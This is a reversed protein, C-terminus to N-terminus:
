IRALERQGIRGADRGTADYVADDHNGGSLVALAGRVHEQRVRGIAGNSQNLLSCRNAIELLERWSGELRSGDDCWGLLAQMGSEGAEFGANNGLSRRENELQDLNRVCDLKSATVAELEGANQTQLAAREDQLLAELRKSCELSRDLVHRLKARCRDPTLGM